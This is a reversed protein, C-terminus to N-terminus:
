LTQVPCHLYFALTGLCMGVLDVWSFLDVNKKPACCMLCFSIFRLNAAINSIHFCQFVKNSPLYSMCDCLGLDIHGRERKSRTILERKAIGKEVWGSLNKPNGNSKFVIKSVTTSIERMDISLNCAMRVLNFYFFRSKNMMIHFCKNCNM